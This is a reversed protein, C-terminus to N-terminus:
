RRLSIWASRRPFDLVGQRVLSAGSPYWVCRLAARAWVACPALPVPSVTYKVNNDGPWKQGVEKCLHEFLLRLDMPCREVCEYVGSVIADTHQLLFKLNDAKGSRTPDLECSRGHRLRNPM